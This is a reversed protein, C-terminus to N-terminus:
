LDSFPRFGLSYSHIIAQSFDSLSLWLRCYCVCVHRFRCHEPLTPVEPAENPYELEGLGGGMDREVGSMISFINEVCFLM